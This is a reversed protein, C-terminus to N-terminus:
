GADGTRTLADVGRVHALGFDTVYVQGQGDLLLNAPKVDRHVIGCSHAHELALAAQRVWEAVVGTRQRVTEQVEAFGADKPVTACGSVLSGLVASALFPTLRTM